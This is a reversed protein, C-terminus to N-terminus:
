KHQEEPQLTIRICEKLSFESKDTIVAGRGVDFGTLVGTVTECKGNVARKSIKVTKGVCAEFHEPRRLRRSLGPSGIEVIDVEKIFDESDMLRNLPLTLEECKDLDPPGDEGDFLIRLYRMAGEKEFIVDWLLCGNAKLFPEAIGRARQEIKVSM